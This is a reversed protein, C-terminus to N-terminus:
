ALLQVDQPEFGLLHLSYREEGPYGSRNQPGCLRENFSDRPGQGRYFRGKMTSFSKAGNM